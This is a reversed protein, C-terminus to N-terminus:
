PVRFVTTPTIGSIPRSAVTTGLTTILLVSSSSAKVSSLFDGVM